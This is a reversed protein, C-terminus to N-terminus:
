IYNLSMKVGLLIPLFEITCFYLINEYIYFKSKFIFFGLGIRYLYALGWLIFLIYILFKFPYYYYVFAIPFLFVAIYYNVVIIEQVYQQTKDKINFLVGTFAYIMSKLLMLFTFGGICLIIKLLENKLLLLSGLFSYVILGMGIGIYLIIFLLAGSKFFNKEISLPITYPKNHLSKLSLVKILALLSFLVIFFVFFWDFSKEPLKVENYVIKQQVILQNAFIQKEELSDKHTQKFLINSKLEKELRSSWSVKNAIHASPSVDQLIYEIRDVFFTKKLLSDQIQM